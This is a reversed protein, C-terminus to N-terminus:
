VGFKARERDFIQKHEDPRLARGWIRPNWLRGDYPYTDSTSYCLRLALASTLPNIHAAASNTVDQGNSYTRINAGQRSFGINAWTGAAICASSTTIQQTGGQATRVTIVGGGSLYLMWGSTNGAGRAMLWQNLAIADPNVWLDMSYDGTTFDLDVTSANTAELYDPHAATFDLVYLGSTLATWAPAHTLTVPHHPKAVDATGVTGTGERMPLSFLLQQYLPDKDISRSM